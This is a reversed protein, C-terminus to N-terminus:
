ATIKGGPDPERHVGCWREKQREFFDTLEQESKKVEETLRAREMALAAEDALLQLLQRQNATAEHHTFFGVTLVGVVDTGSLM